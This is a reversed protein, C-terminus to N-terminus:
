WRSPSPTSEVAGIWPGLCPTFFSSATDHHEVLDLPPDEGHEDCTRSRTAGTEAGFLAARSWIQAGYGPSPTPVFPTGCDVGFLGAPCADFLPRDTPLAFPLPRPLLFFQM